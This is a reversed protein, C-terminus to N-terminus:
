PAAVHRLSRGATRGVQVEGGAIRGWGRQWEHLVARHFLYSQDFTLVRRSSAIKLSSSQQTHFKVYGRIIPTCIGCAIPNTKRPFKRRARPLLSMESKETNVSSKPLKPNRYEYYSFFYSFGSTYRPTKYESGVQTGRYKISVVEGYQPLATGISAHAM